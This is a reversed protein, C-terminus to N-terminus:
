AMQVTRRVFERERPHPCYAAHERVAYTPPKRRPLRLRAPGANEPHNGPNVVVIGDPDEPRRRTAVGRAARLAAVDTGIVTQRAARFLLGGAPWEFALIRGSLVVTLPLLGPYQPAPWPESLAHFGCTCDPEPAGHAPRRESIRCTAIADYPYPEGGTLPQFRDGVPRALKHAKVLWVDDATKTLSEHVINPVEPRVPTGALFDALRIGGHCM